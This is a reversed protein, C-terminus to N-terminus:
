LYFLYIVLLDKLFRYAVEEDGEAKLWQPYLYIDAIHGAWRQGIRGGARGELSGMPCTNCGCGFGM